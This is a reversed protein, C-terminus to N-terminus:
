AQAPRTEALESGAGTSRTSIRHPSRPAGPTAASASEAIVSCSSSASAIPTFRLPALQGVLWSPAMRPDQEHDINSCAVMRRGQGTPEVPDLTNQLLKTDISFELPITTITTPEPARQSGGLNTTLATTSPSGRPPIGPTPLLRSNLEKVSGSQLPSNMDLLHACVDLSLRQM